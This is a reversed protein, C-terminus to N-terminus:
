EDDDEGQARPNGGAPAPAAAPQAAPPPPPAQGAPAAGAAAITDRPLPVQLNRNKIVKGDPGIVSDLAITITVASFGPAVGRDPANTGFNGTGSFGAQQEGGQAILANMREVPDSPQRAEGPRVPIGAQDQQILNPVFPDNVQYGERLISLVGDMRYFALMLDAYQQFSEIVGTLRVICRRNDVPTATASTVRFFSPVYSFVDRYLNTYVSNHFNMAEALKVNRDIGTASAAITDAKKSVRVAEEAAPRVEEAREKARALQANSNMIMFLSAGVSALFFLISLTWARKYQGSKAAAAPLLNLKM